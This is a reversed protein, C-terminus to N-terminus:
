GSETGTEPEPDAGRLAVPELLHLVFFLGVLGLLTWLPDLEDRRWVAAAVGGLAALRMMTGALWAGLFGTPRQRLRLLLLFAGTQVSVAVAVAVLLGHRRAGAPLALAVLVAPVAVGGMMAMYRPFREFRRSMSWRGGCGGFRAGEEEAGRSGADAGRSGAEAGRSGAEERERERERPIFLLHQLVSWFGAAAGTLAGVITFLPRTGVKGDLWWGAALFLSTALAITLGHGSYQALHVLPSNPAEGEGEGEDRTM